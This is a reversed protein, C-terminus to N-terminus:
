PRLATERRVETDDPVGAARLALPAPSDDAVGAWRRLQATAAAAEGADLGAIRSGHNGNPQYYVASDRTDRGLVFPEASWPDDEGYVFLLESGRTRVWRDIDRMTDPEFRPRIAPPTQAPASGAERYRQLDSLWPTEAVNPWGLQRSAQYFYPVYPELGQDSYFSWSAVQDIFDFIERDTSEDTPIQACLSADGYQWFAFPTDLTAAELARDATRFSQAYTLGNEESYATLLSLMGPRRELTIRQLDRLAANCVRDDGAQQIFPVYVDRRNDVDNPAVYAVTGDVDDPYFRRHYVSTMGGKSAGTSIWKARYIPRLAEVLRHHDTAAQWITLRDWDAPDPRSPEFYRQETSIQNGGVVTTPESEFPTTRVGYGSTHLVMPRDTGVHLLTLRQEFTAGRPRRHDVPQRYGLVFFTQGTDLKEESVVRMGAIGRLRTGVDDASTPALSGVSRPAAARPAEAATAAVGG